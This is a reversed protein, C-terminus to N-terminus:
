ADKTSLQSSTGRSLLQAISDSLALQHLLRAHVICVYAAFITGAVTTKERAAQVLLGSQSLRSSCVDQPKGKVLCMGQGVGGAKGLSTSHVWVSTYALLSGGM